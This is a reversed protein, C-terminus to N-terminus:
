VGASLNKILQVYGEFRGAATPLADLVKYGSQVQAANAVPSDLLGLIAAAATDASDPDFYTAAEGCIARAFDLDSAILPVGSAMAEPYNASFTELFSPMFAMHCSRYLNPAEAINVPGLNNLHERVGLQEAQALLARVEPMTEDLTLVFEFRLEPRVAKLAAAARPIIELNKHRYYSSLYLLRLAEGEAPLGVPDRPLARFGAACTNPVVFINDLSRFLRKNLGQRANEAEAVWQDAFLFWWGKYCVTAFTKLRRAWGPLVKFARWSSHTLWGDAIGCLHPASFTAYAPGFVTFVVDANVAKEFAQVQKVADKSKSPSNDMVLANPLDTGVADAVQRSVAYHWRIGCAGADQEAENIFSAAVQIGGSRVLTSANVLVNIM